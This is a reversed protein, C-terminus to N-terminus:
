NPTFYGDNFMEETIKIYEHIKSASTTSFFQILYQDNTKLIYSDFSKRDDDSLLNLNHKLHINDETPLVIKQSKLEYIVYGIISSVAFLGLGKFAIPSVSNSHSFMIERRKPVSSINRTLHFDFNKLLARFM